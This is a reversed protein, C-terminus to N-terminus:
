ESVNGFIRGICAAYNVVGRLEQNTPTVSNEPITLVVAGDCARLSTTIIFVQGSLDRKAGEVVEIEVSHFPGQIDSAEFGEVPSDFAVRWRVTSSLVLEAIVGEKNVPDISGSVLPLDRVSLEVLNKGLLCEGTCFGEPSCTMDSCPCNFLDSEVLDCDPDYMGCNCDCGDNADYFYAECTWEAPATPWDCIGSALCGIDDYCGFVDQDPDDCDPDHAGCECDCGDTANYFNPSCFWGPAPSYQVLNCVGTNNRMVCTTIHGDCGFVEPDSDCDPDWAGCECDCGDSANYYNSQCSWAFPVAHYCTDGAVNRQNDIARKRPHSRRGEYRGEAYPGMPWHPKHGSPTGPSQLSSVAGFSLDRTSRTIVEVLTGVIEKERCEGVCFGANCEMGDCPCNLVPQSPTGCDPDWSGCECNCGDATGYSDVDCTWLLPVFQPVPVALLPHCYQEAMQVNQGYFELDPDFGQADCDPDYVGCSCDCGDTANYFHRECTWGEPVDILEGDCEGNSLNCTTGDVYDLCGFLTGNGTTETGMCDPDVVPGCNCDCGDTANYFTPDCEWECPVVVDAFVGRARSNGGLADTYSRISNATLAIQGLMAGMYYHVETRNLSLRGPHLQNLVLRELGSLNEDLENLHFPQAFIDQLELMSKLLSILCSKREEVQPWYPTASCGIGKCARLERGIFSLTHQIAERSARTCAEAYENPENTYQMGLQSAAEGFLADDNNAFSQVARRASAGKRLHFHTVQHGEVGRKATDNVVVTTKAFRAMDCFSHSPNGECPFGEMRIFDDGECTFASVSNIAAKGWINTPKPLADTRKTEPLLSRFKIEDDEFPLRMELERVTMPLAMIAESEPMVKTHLKDWNFPSNFYTFEEIPNTLVNDSLSDRDRQSVDDDYFKYKNSTSGDKKEIVTGTVVAPNGMHAERAAAVCTYADCDKSCSDTPKDYTCDALVGPSGIWICLVVVCVRAAIAMSCLQLPFERADM